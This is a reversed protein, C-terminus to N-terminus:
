RVLMHNFSANGRVPVLSSAAAARLIAACHSPTFDGGGSIDYTSAGLKYAGRLWTLNFRAPASLSTQSSGTVVVAEDFSASGGVMMDGAGPTGMGTVDTTGTSKNSGVIPNGTDVGKFYAVLIIAGESIAGAGVFNWALTQSGTAPNVIRGLYSKQLNDAIHSQLHTVAAGGITLTTPPYLDDNDWASIIVVACTCDAPVTIAASSNDASSTVVEDSIFEVAM